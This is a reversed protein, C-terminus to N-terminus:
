LFHEKKLVLLFSILNSGRLSVIAMLKTYALLEVEVM